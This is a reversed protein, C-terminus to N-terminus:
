QTLETGQVELLIFVVRQARMGRHHVLHQLTATALRQGQGDEGQLQGPAQGDGKFAYAEGAMEQQAHRTGIM